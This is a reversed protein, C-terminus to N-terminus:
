LWSDTGASHAGGSYQGGIAPDITRLRYIQEDIREVGQGYIEINLKEDLRFFRIFGDRSFIAAVTPYGADELRRQFQEDTGSPRTASAGVGPHSHFHALLRHTFADLRILLRHTDPMHGTVGLMTRRQHEFAMKQDLVYTYGLEAGTIFFFQEKVDATLEQFCQDLFLSSVLYRPAEMLRAPQEADIRNLAEIFEQVRELDRSLRRMRSRRTHTAAEVFQALLRERRAILARRKETLHSSNAGPVASTM